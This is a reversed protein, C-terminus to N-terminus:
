PDIRLSRQCRVGFRWYVVVSLLFNFAISTIDPPFPYGLSRVIYSAGIVLLSLSGVTAAFRARLPLAVSSVVAVLGGIMPPVWYWWPFREPPAVGQWYSLGTLAERAGAVFLLLGVFINIARSM